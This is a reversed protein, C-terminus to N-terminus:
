ELNGHPREEAAAVAVAGQEGTWHRTGIEGGPISEVTVGLLGIRVEVRPFLTWVVEESALLDDFANAGLIQNDPVSGGGESCAAEWATIWTSERPMCSPRDPGSGGRGSVRPNCLWFEFAKCTSLVIRPCTGFCDKDTELECLADVAAAVMHIFLSVSRIVYKDCGIPVTQCGFVTWEWTPICCMLQIEARTFYIRFGSTEQSHGSPGDV